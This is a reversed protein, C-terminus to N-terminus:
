ALALGDGAAGTQTRGAILAVLDVFGVTRQHPLQLRESRAAMRPMASLRITHLWWKWCKAVCHAPWPLSGRYMRTLTPEAEAADGELHHRATLHKAMRADLSPVVDEVLQVGEVAFVVGAHGLHQAVQLRSDLM